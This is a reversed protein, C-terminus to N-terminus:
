FDPNRREIMAKVGKMFDPEASMENTLVLSEEVSDRISRHLDAYIQRRTEKLSRSSVTSALSKAFALAADVSEGPETLSHVLGISNAEESLFIRSTMLLETARSLGILRPLLWSLGYEAPFNLKGHAVTFKVGRDAIRIDAYCALALGIGAVPGNIAAVVPKSLGFHYALQADFDDRVGYGPSAENGRLGDKYNGREGHGELAQSDGGVCFAKGAGTVVIARVADDAEAVALCARYDAHMRGTWANGREPRHLTILATRERIEYTTAKLDLEDAHM